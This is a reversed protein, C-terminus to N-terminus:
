LAFRLGCNHCEVPVPTPGTKTASLRTQCQPCKTTRTAGAVVGRAPHTVAVRPLLPSPAADPVLPRAVPLAEPREGRLWSAIAGVTALLAGVGAVYWGLGARTVNCIEVGLRTSCERDFFDLDPRGTRTTEAPFAVYAYLLAALAALAAVTPLARPLWRGGMRPRPLRLLALVSATAAAAMAALAFVGLVITVTRYAGAPADEDREFPGYREWELTAGSQFGYGWWPLYFAVVLLLTAGSLAAAAAIRGATSSM